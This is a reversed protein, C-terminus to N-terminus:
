STITGHRTNPRMDQPRRSRAQPSPGPSGRSSPLPRQVAEREVLLVNGEAGVRRMRTPWGNRERGPVRGRRPRSERGRRDVLREQLLQLALEVQPGRDHADPQSAGSDREDRRDAGVRPCHVSSRAIAVARALRPWRVKTPLSSPQAASTGSRATVVAQADRMEGRAAGDAGERRARFDEVDDTESRGNSTGMASSAHHRSGRRRSAHPLSAPLSGADEPRAV